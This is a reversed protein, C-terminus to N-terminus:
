AVEQIIKNIIDTTYEFAQSIVKDLTGPSGIVRLSLVSSIVLGGSYAFREHSILATLSINTYINMSTIFGSGGTISGDADYGPVQVQAIEDRDVLAAALGGRYVFFAMIISLAKLDNQTTARNYPMYICLLNNSGINFDAASNTIVAGASTLTCMTSAPFRPLMTAPFKALSTNNDIILLTPAIWGPITNYYPATTLTVTSANSPTLYEVVIFDMAPFRGVYCTILGQGSAKAELAMAFVGQEFRNGAKQAFGGTTSTILYDGIAVAAIDADVYVNGLGELLILGQANIAIADTAGDPSDQYVIGIVDPNNAINTVTFSEPTATYKTVVVGNNMVAPSKNTMLATTTNITSYGNDNAATGSAAITAVVSAQLAAIQRQLSQIALLTASDVSQNKNKAAQQEIIRPLNLNNGGM